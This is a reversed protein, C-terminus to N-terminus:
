IMEKYLLGRAWLERKLDEKKMKEFPKQKQSLSGKKGEPGKLVIIQRDLFSVYKCRFFHEPDHMGCSSCFYHGGKQQGVEFAVAPGDGKVFRM